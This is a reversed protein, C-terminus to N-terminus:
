TRFFNYSFSHKKYFMLQTFQWTVVPTCGHILWSKFANIKSINKTQQKQKIQETKFDVFNNFFLLWQLRIDMKGVSWVACQDVERIYLLYCIRMRNTQFAVWCLIKLFETVKTDSIKLKTTTTPPPTKFKKTTTKGFM